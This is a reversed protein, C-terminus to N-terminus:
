LPDQCTTPPVLAPRRLPGGQDGNGVLPPASDGPSRQHRGWFNGTYANGPLSKWTIAEVPQSVWVPRPLGRALRTIGCRMLTVAVPAKETVVGEVGELLAVAGRRHLRM